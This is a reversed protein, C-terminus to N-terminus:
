RVEVRRWMGLHMIGEEDWRGLGEDTVFGMKGWVKEVAVQAHILVLGKWEKGAAGREVEEKHAGAWGLATSVLVRGLGHGRWEKLLALRTIKVYPEEEAENKVDGVHGRKSAPVTGEEPTPHAGHPPPVLRVTGVPIHKGEPDTAYVVWQWSRHDDEDLENELSCHQEDCFVTKRISFADRFVQPWPFSSREPYALSPGQPSEIETSFTPKPTTM